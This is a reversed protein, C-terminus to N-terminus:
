QSAELVTEIQALTENLMRGVTEASILLGEEWLPTEDLIERIAELKQEPTM